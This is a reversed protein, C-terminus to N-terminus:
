KGVLRVVASAPIRRQWDLRVSIRKGFSGDWTTELGAATLAGVVRRGIAVGSTDGGDIHGYTLHLGHGEVAGDTDQAHYFVFGSVDAGADIAAQIPEGIEALGCNQCCTFDHEAVIGEANLAEFARDLRDCDTIEPWSSQAALHAAFAADIERECIRTATAADADENEELVHEVAEDLIDAFTRDGRAVIPRVFARIEQTLKADGADNM